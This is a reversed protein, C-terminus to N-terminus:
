ILDIAYEYLCHDLFQELTKPNTAIKIEDILNQDIRWCPANIAYVLYAKLLHFARSEAKLNGMLFLSVARKLEGSQEDIYHVPFLLDPQTSIKPYYAPFIFGDVSLSNKNEM